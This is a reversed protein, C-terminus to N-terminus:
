RFILPILEVCKLSYATGNWTGGRGGRMTDRAVPNSDEAPNAVLHLEGTELANRTIRRCLSTWLTLGVVAQM